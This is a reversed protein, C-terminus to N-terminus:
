WCSLSNSIFIFTRPNRSNERTATVHKASRSVSAPLPSITKAVWAGVVPRSTGAAGTVVMVTSLPPSGSVLLLAVQSVAVGQVNRRAM